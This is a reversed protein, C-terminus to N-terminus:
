YVNCYNIKEYKKMKAFKRVRDWKLNQDILKMYGINLIM